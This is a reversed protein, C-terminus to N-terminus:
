GRAADPADVAPAPAAQSRVWAVHSHERARLGDARGEFYRQQIADPGLDELLQLGIASLAQRLTSPDVGSRM